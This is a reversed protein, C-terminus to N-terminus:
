DQKEKKRPKVEEKQEDTSGVGPADDIEQKEEIKNEDTKKVEESFEEQKLEQAKKELIEKLDPTINLVSVFSEENLPTIVRESQIKDLTTDLHQMINRKIESFIEEEERLDISLYEQSGGPSRYAESQSKIREQGYQRIILSVSSDDDDFSLSSEKSSPSLNITDLIDYLFDLIFHNEKPVGKYVTQRRLKSQEEAVLSTESKYQPRRSIYLTEGEPSRSGFPRKFHVRTVSYSLSYDKTDKFDPTVTRVHREYRQLMKDIDGQLHTTVRVLHFDVALIVRVLALLASMLWCATHLWAAAVTLQTAQYVGRIRREYALTAVNVTYTCTTSGTIEGLKLCLEDLGLQTVASAYVCLGGMLSSFVFVPPLVRWPRQLGTLTRSSASCMLFMTTWVLGFIGSVLPVYTPLYCASKDIWQTSLFDVPLMEAMKEDPIFEYILHHRLSTLSLLKPFLVCKEDFLYMIMHFCFTCFSGFVFAMFFLLLQAGKWAGNVEAETKEILKFEEYLKIKEM